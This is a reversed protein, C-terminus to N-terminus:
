RRKKLSDRLGRRISENLPRILRHAARGPSGGRRARSLANRSPGTVASPLRGLMSGFFGPM